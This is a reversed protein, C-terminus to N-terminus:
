SAPFFAILQVPGPKGANGNEVLPPLELKVRGARVPSTGVVERIAEEMAAPTARAPTVAVAAALGIGAVAGGTVRLFERRSASGSM